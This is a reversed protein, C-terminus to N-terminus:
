ELDERGGAKLRLLSGQIELATTQADMFCYVLLEWFDGGFIDGIQRFTLPKGAELEDRVREFAEQDVAM